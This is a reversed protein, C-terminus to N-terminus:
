VRSCGDGKKRRASTAPHKSGECGNTAHRLQKLGQNVSDVNFVDGGKLPFLNRLARADTVACKNKFTIERLEARSAQTPLPEAIALRGTSHGFPLRRIDGGGM